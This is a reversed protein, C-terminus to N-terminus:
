KGEPKTMLDKIEDRTEYDFDRMKNNRTATQSKFVGHLIQGQVRAYKVIICKLIKTLRINDLVVTLICVFFLFLLKFM